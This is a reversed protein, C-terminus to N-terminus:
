HVCSSIALGGDSPSWAVPCTSPDHPKPCIMDSTIMAIRRVKSDHVDSTRLPRIPSAVAASGVECGAQAPSGESSPAIEVKNSKM